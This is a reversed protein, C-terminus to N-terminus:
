IYGAATITAPKKTSPIAVAKKYLRMVHTERICIMGCYRNGAKKNRLFTAFLPPFARNGEQSPRLPTNICAFM